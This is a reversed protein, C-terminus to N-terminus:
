FNALSRSNRSPEEVASINWKMNSEVISKQMRLRSLSELIPIHPREEECLQYSSIVLQCWDSFSMYEKQQPNATARSIYNRKDQGMGLKELKYVTQLRSCALASLKFRPLDSEARSLGVREKRFEESHGEVIWVVPM